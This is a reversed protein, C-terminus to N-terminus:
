VIQKLTAKFYSSTILHICIINLISCFFSFDLDYCKDLESFQCGSSQTLLFSTLCCLYRSVQVKKSLRQNRKAKATILIFRVWIVEPDTDEVRIWNSAVLSRTPRWGRTRQRKEDFMNYACDPSWPAEKQWASQRGIRQGAVFKVTRCCTCINRTKMM